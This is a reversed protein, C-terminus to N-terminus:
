AIGGVKLYFQGEREDVIKEPRHAESDKKIWEFLSLEDMSGSNFYEWYRKNPNDEGMAKGFRWDAEIRLKKLQQPSLYCLGIAVDYALAKEAHMPNTMITSHNTPNNRRGDDLISTIQENHWAEYGEPMQSKGDEGIVNGESDVWGANGQRRARMRLIAHDEYRQSAESDVNGIAEQDKQKIEYRDYPDSEAKKPKHANRSAAPPDNGENFESHAHDGDCVSVANGYLLAKPTFPEDLPPADCLVTWDKPPNANVQFLDLASTALTVVYLVPAAATSAFKAVYNENSSWAGTLGYRAPPSPPFWFGSTKGKKYRWDNEWYHYEAYQGVPFGSAFVRQTLVGSARIDDLEQTPKGKIYGLGRWGIGQVTVASIVQDHPCCYLTVRGHTHGNLGHAARDASATYPKGGSESTRTNAMAKDIRDAPTEFATRERIIDLFAALTKTRADYSERGRRHQADYVGRQSWNDMGTDTNAVSYPPNALVYADAVCRGSKGWPDTVPEWADGFFAATLGVMNGQSHCVITIPVDAQKERISRVLRALRLAALVAYSRPPTRFLPRQTPNVAQVSIFGFIRDDLGEHWLDPLSSTGNAFPGGGWYHQENLFIKDGYEKLEEKNAKYGWRFHIVPSFSPDPKIYNDPLLAPNLFGEPTLSDTYQAPLLQGASVGTYMLQDDLRALRRNLGLCLGKEAAEFWEGESNVGHVFIVVGPLPQQMVCVFRSNSLLTVGTGQAVVIRPPEVRASTYNM